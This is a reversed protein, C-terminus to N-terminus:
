TSGVSMGRLALHLVNRETMEQGELIGAVRGRYLVLIRNAIALLEPLESSSMLVASGSRTQDVILRYIEHKAGVDVGSTPDDLILLRAGRVLWRGIVVKQQNGGSLSRMPAEISPTRVGLGRVVRDALSREIAGRVVPGRTILDGSAASVNARVSLIEFTGQAREEPVLGLGRRKARAPSGPEFRQGHLLITGGLIRDAGVLARALSTRGSGMLGYVGLVEGRRLTLSVHELGSETSLDDVALVMEDTPVPREVAFGSSLVRGVMMEVLDAHNAEAAAVTGITRGDRLVTIRDSIETVEGLKHSIFVVAVGDDRLRRMVSFLRDVEREGLSATPEDMVLLRVDGHLARAIELLQREGVALTGAQRNLGLSLQVRELAERADQDAQSRNIVGLRSPERGLLLNEQVSLHPIVNLKQHIVRIGLHTAHAVDLHDIESGQWRIHGEDPQHAGAIIKVMTSKGAGNEGLLTHIEGQVVEFDTGGLARVGGFTKVIGTLSLIPARPTMRAPDRGMDGPATM